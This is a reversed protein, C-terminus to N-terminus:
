GLFLLYSGTGILVGLIAGAVVDSVYHLGMIVRSAGISAAAVLLPAWLLHLSLSLVTAIAFANITHGSPFSYRDPPHVQLFSPHPAQDCPRPRRVRRKTISFTASALGAALAGAALVRHYETGGAALAGAVVYWLWGDGLRTAWVMWMRFWRPPRWSRVRLALAHDSQNVYTLLNTV